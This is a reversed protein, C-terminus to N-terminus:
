LKGTQIPNSSAQNDSCQLMPHSQQFVVSDDPVDHGGSMDGIDIAFGWEFPPASDGNGVESHCIADALSTRDYKLDTGVHADDFAWIHLKDKSHNTM